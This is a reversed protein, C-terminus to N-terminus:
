NVSSDDSSLRESRSKEYAEMFFAHDATEEVFGSALFKYLEQGPQLGFDRGVLGALTSGVLAIAERERQEDMESGVELEVVSLFAEWLRKSISNGVDIGRGTRGTMTPIQARAGARSLEEGALALSNVLHDFPRYSVDIRLRVKNLWESWIAPTLLQYVTDQSVLTAIISSIHGLVDKYPKRIDWLAASVDSFVTCEKLLNHAEDLSSSSEISAPITSLFYGNDIRVGRVNWDALRALRQAVERKSLLDRREAELLLDFTCIPSFAPDSINYFIRVFLDDSYGVFEDSSLLDKLHQTREIQVSRIPNHILGPPGPQIVSPLRRRLEILITQSKEAFFRSGFLSSATQLEILTSKAVAIRPFVTFLVEFLDLDAVLILSVIDLLPPAPLERLHQTQVPDSGYMTLHYQYDDKYSRKAIEWLHFVDLVNLLVNCPRWSFPVPLRQDKLERSVKKFWKKQDDDIGSIEDLLQLISAPDSDDPFRVVRFVTSRPFNKSFADVRRDFDQKRPDDVSATASLTAVVFLNLFTGEELENNQDAIQGFRWAIDILNEDMPDVALRLSFLMQLLDRRQPLDATQLLRTIQSLADPIFGCRAAINIYTTLTFPSGQDKKVLDQLLDLAKGSEGISELAFAKITVLNDLPGFRAIEKEALLLLDSWRSLTALSEAIRLIEDLAFERTGRTAEYIAVLRQASQSSHTDLKQFLIGKIMTHSPYEDYFNALESLATESELPADACRVLYHYVAFQPASSDRGRLLQLLQNEHATDLLFHAAVAGVALLDPNIDVGSARTRNLEELVIELCARNEHIEFSLLAQRTVQAPDSPQRRAAELALKLDGCSFALYELCSQLALIHPRVSAAEKVSALITEQQDLAIAPIALFDALHEVELPWGNRRLGSLAEVCDSWCDKLVEIDLGAPGTLPIHPVSSSPAGTAHELLLNFTARAKLIHLLTQHRTPLNPDALGTECATRTDSWNCALSYVLAYSLHQRQLPLRSVFALAEEHRDLISLLKAKLALIEHRSSDPLVRFLRAFRQPRSDGSLGRILEDVWATTYKPEPPYLRIAKKFRDRALETRNQFVYTRGILYQYEAHEHSTVSHSSFSISELIQAAGIADSLELARHASYLSGAFSGEPVDPGPSPHNM